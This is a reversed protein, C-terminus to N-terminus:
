PSSVVDWAHGHLSEVLIFLFGETEIGHSHRWPRVDRQFGSSSSPSVVFSECHLDRPLFM